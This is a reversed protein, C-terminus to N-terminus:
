DLNVAEGWPPVVYRGDTKPCVAWLVPYDPPEAPYEGLGDTFYVLCTVQDESEELYDFVPQFDTGGGSVVNWSLPEGTSVRQTKYQKSIRDRPIRDSCPILELEHEGIQQRAAEIETGCCDLKRQDMSGSTDIAFKISVKPAYLSPIVIGRNLYTRNPRAYSYDGRACGVVFKRLADQWSYKSPTGYVNVKVPTTQERVESQVQSILENLGMPDPTPQIVDGPGSGSGSTSQSLDVPNGDEDVVLVWSGNEGVKAGAPADGEGRIIHRDFGKISRTENPTTAQLHNYIQEASMGQYAPDYLGQYPGSDIFDMGMHPYRRMIPVLIAHIAHDIAEGWLDCARALESGKLGKIIKQGRWIHGAQVHFVEHKLVFLLQRDTLSATFEPNWFLHIGDVAATQNWGRCMTLILRKAHYYWLPTTSEFKSIADLWRQEQVQVEDADLLVTQSM